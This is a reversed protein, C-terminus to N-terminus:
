HIPEKQATGAKRPYAKPTNKIKDILVFSREIDSDPLTLKKVTAAKGGLIHIAKKASNLEDEIDASKYSIFKGSSKVFPLCYESLTSLNAVARSM